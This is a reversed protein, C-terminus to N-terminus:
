ELQNWREDYKKVNISNTLLVLSALISVLFASCIYNNMGLRWAIFYIMLAIITVTSSWIGDDNKTSAYLLFRAKRIPKLDEGWTHILSFVDLNSASDSRFSGEGSERYFFMVNQKKTVDHKEFSERTSLIFYDRERPLIDHNTTFERLKNLLEPDIEGKYNSSELMKLDYIECMEQIQKGTYTSTTFKDSFLKLAQKTKVIEDNKEIQHTLGISRLLELSEKPAELLLTVKELKENDEKKKQNSLIDLDKQLRTKKEM